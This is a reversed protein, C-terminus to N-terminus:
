YSGNRKRIFWEASILGLLLLLVPLFSVLDIYRKQTYVITKMDDRAALHKELQDLQQPYVMKGKHRAAMNNLLVHNAVTNMSEINLLKVTFMGSKQFAKGAFTTSAKYSYEGPPLSGANLYYANSTRTFAYPFNKKNEDTIVINVEPANILQYSDNYLEADIAVAENESFNNKLMIRFQSKDEKVALYQIIRTFLEDFAQQNGTKAYNALRWRWIGEGTITASKRDVGQNFLIM